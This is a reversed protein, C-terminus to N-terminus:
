SHSGIPFLPSSLDLPQCDLGLAAVTRSMLVRSSGVVLVVLSGRSSM